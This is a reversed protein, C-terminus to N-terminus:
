RCTYWCSGSNGDCYTRCTNTCFHNCGGSCTLCGNISDASAVAITGNEDRYAELLTRLRSVEMKDINM